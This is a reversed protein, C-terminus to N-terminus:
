PEPPNAWVAAPRGLLWIPELFHDCPRSKQRGKKSLNKSRRKQGNQGWFPGLISGFDHWFHELIGDWLADLFRGEFNAHKVVKEAQTPLHGHAQNMAFLLDLGCKGSRCVCRFLLGVCGFFTCFFSGWVRWFRTWFGDLFWSSILDGFFICFIPFLVSFPEWLPRGLTFRKTGKQSSAGRQGAMAELMAGM